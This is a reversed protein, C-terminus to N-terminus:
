KRNDRPSVGLLRSKLSILIHILFGTFEERNIIAFRVELASIKMYILLRNMKNNAHFFQHLVKMRKAALSSVSSTKLRIQFTPYFFHRQSLNNRKMRRPRIGENELLLTIALDDPLNAFEAWNSRCLVEATSKTMVLATGAVYSSNSFLPNGELKCRDIFGGFFKSCSDIKDIENKVLYPPFYTSVNTRILVDFDLNNLAWKIGLITKELINEYKEAVPLYLTDGIVQSSHENSGRLVLYRQSPLLDQIWTIKQAQLDKQNEEADSGLILFLTKTQLNINM